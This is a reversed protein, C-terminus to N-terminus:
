LKLGQSSILGDSDGTLSLFYIGSQAHPVELEFTQSHATLVIRQQAIVRGLVDSLVLQGRQAKSAKAGGIRIYNDAVFTRFNSILTQINPEVVIATGQGNISSCIGSGQIQLEIDSIPSIGQQIQSLNVYDASSPDTFEGVWAHIYYEGVDMVDFRPIASIAQIIKNPGFSLVFTRDFNGPVVANGDASASIRVMPSMLIVTDQAATVTGSFAACNSGATVQFGPGFLDIEACIGEATIADFADFVTLGSSVWDSRDLYDLSAPNSTEASLAHMSYSGTETVTFAPTDSLAIITQDFGQALVFTLETANPLIAGGDPTAELLAEGNALPVTSQVPIVSSAFAACPTTPDPLVIIEAGPITLDACVGSDMIAAAFEGITTVNFQITSLDFFEPSSSDSIEANLYYVTFTDTTNVSFNPNIFNIAIITETYGRTLIFISDYGAPVVGSGDLTAEVRAIGNQLNVPTNLPAISGANAPCVNTPSAPTTKTVVIANDSMEFCGTAFRVGSNWLPQGVEAEIDGTYGYAYIWYKGAPLFSLDVEPGQSFGRIIRSRDIIVFTFPSTSSSRRDVLPAQSTTADVDIHEEGDVELDGGEVENREITLFNDTLDFCGDVLQDSFINEGRRIELDGSYALGYVFSKGPDLYGFNESGNYDVKEVTGNSDTILYVYKDGEEGSVVFDIYDSSNDGVCISTLVMGDKDTIVGAVPASHEIEIYNDSLEFCGSALQARRIDVGLNATLTGTYSLLYARSEGDSFGEFDVTQGAVSQILEGRDNTILMAVATTLTYDAQFTIEDAQGDQTCLAIDRTSGTAENRIRGSPCQAFVESFFLLSLLSLTFLRLKM